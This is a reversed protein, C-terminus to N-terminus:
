NLWFALPIGCPPTLTKSRITGVPVVSALSSSPFNIKGEPPLQTRKRVEGPDTVAVNEAITAKPQHSSLPFHILYYDIKLM